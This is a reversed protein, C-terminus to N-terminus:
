LRYVVILPGPRQRHWLSVAPAYIEDFVFPLSAPDDAPSELHVATLEGALRRYCADREADLRKDRLRINQINSSTVIYNFGQERYWELPRSCVGTDGVVMVDFREDRGDELEGKGLLPPAHAPWDVAIRAGPEVYADIWDRALTRTDPAQLLVDFRISEISPQAAVLVGLGIAVLHRLRHSSIRRTAADAMLAALVILAPLAPLLFRAFYMQQRGMVAYMAVPLSLVVWENRRHAILARGIGCVALLFLGLGLQWLLSRAYFVYGGDPDIQWADFGSRGPVYLAEYIDGVIQWPTIVFYPSCVCAVTAAALAAAALRATRQRVSTPRQGSAWVHALVLPLALSLSSYKTAFAIGILAGTALYHRWSSTRMLRLCAILALTTLLTVPVDNVAFHSDRVHGFCVACWFAALLAVRPGQLEYGLQWVAWVTLAGILATTARGLLYLTTPDSSNLRGFEEVSGYEGSVRGVAYFLGYEALLVYKYLPPNNWWTPELGTAGMRAAQRVYQVEDVHYEYPLGFGVGWLRLWAGLLCVAVLGRHHGAIAAGARVPM